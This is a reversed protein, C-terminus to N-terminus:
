FSKDVRPGLAHVGFGRAGRASAAALAARYAEFAATVRGEAADGRHVYLRHRLTFSEGAGITHSKTGPWCTGVFGYHRLIWSADRDRSDPHTFVAIGSLRDRGGFRASMDTWAYSQHLSDETLVGRDTTLRTGQRPAFRLCFAGYGKDVEGRLHVPEDLAQVRMEVDIARGLGDSRYVTLRLSEEAVAREGIKWHHRTALVAHDAATRREVWGAFHQRIGRIHWLDYTRSDDGIQITPWMWSLGRHHFHDAPFDDTLVEGDLGYLPHVYCSRTYRAAVGEPLQDGYRYGLVPQGDERLYLVGPQADAEWSFPSGVAVGAALLGTLVLSSRNM